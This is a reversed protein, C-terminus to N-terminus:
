LQSFPMFSLNPMFFLIKDATANSQMTTQKLPHELWVASVALGDSFSKFLM